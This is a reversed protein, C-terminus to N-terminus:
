SVRTTTSPTCRPSSPPRPWSAGPSRSARPALGLSVGAANPVMTGTITVWGVAYELAFVLAMVSAGLLFGAGLGLWWARDLRVGFDSFPRHDLWRGALGVSAVVAAALLPGVLMNIIRDYGAHTSGPLFWGRRHLATLPEAVALIPVLALGTMLGAQALLRWFARLRRETANWFFTM